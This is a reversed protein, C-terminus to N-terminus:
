TCCSQQKKEPRLNFFVSPTKPQSPLHAEFTFLDFFCATFIFLFSLHAAPHNPWFFSLYQFVIKLIKAALNSHIWISKLPNQFGMQLKFKELYYNSSQNLSGFWLINFEMGLIIQAWVLSRLISSIQIQSPIQIWIFTQINEFFM